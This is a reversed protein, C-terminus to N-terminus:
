PRPPYGKFVKEMAKKANKEMKKPDNGKGLTKTATAEWVQKKQKVDYMELVLWGVRIISASNTTAGHFGALSNAGGQWTIDTSFSSWEASQVIAIQYIVYLDATESDTKMLGKKALEVDIAGTLIEDSVDDPYQAKDARKWKYTKYSSFDTGAAAYYKVEQAVSLSSLVLVFLLGAAATLLKGTM